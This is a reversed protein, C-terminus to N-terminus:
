RGKEGGEQAEIECDIENSNVQGKGRWSICVM